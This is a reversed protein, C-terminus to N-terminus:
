RGITPTVQCSSGLTTNNVQWAIRHCQVVRRASVLEARSSLDDQAQAAQNLRHEPCYTPSGKFKANSLDAITESVTCFTPPSQTWGMTCSLPIGILQCEGPYKPLIVALRLCQNAELQLRYFGDKIDHKAARTPGFRPNAHRILHLCRHLTGGFQMSEPPAHPLTADNISGWEWPWSHDCLLRPKREREEKVAAPTFLIDELFVERTESISGVRCHWGVKSRNRLRELALQNLKSSEKM